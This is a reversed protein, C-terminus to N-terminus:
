KQFQKASGANPSGPVEDIKNTATHMPGMPGGSRGPMRGGPTTLLTDSKVKAGSHVQPAPNSFSKMANPNSKLGTGKTVESPIAM